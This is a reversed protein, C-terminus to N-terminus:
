RLWNIRVKAWMCVVLSIGPHFQLVTMMRHIQGTQQLPQKPTLNLALRLFTSPYIGPDHSLTFDSQDDADSDSQADDDSDPLLPQWAASGRRLCQLVGDIEPRRQPQPLWCQELTEWLDGTFWVEEKGEPRGPREGEIVKRMVIVGSDGSFPPKGSLVELIVMGLAYCDSERTPRGDERGFRVPDLLEPSM